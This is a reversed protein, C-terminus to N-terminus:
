ILKALRLKKIDSYWNIDINENVKSSTDLTEFEPKIISKYKLYKRLNIIYLNGNIFNIKDKM